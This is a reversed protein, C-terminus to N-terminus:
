RNKELQRQAEELERNAQRIIRQRGEADGAALQKIRRASESKIDRVKDKYSRSAFYAKSGPEIREVKLGGMAAKITLPDHERGRTDREGLAAPIFKRPIQGWYGPLYAGALHQGMTYADSDLANTIKRKRFNDYNFAMEMLPVWWASVAPLITEDNNIGGSGRIGFADKWEVPFPNLYRTNLVHESGKGIMMGAGDMYSPQEKLAEEQEQDLAVYDKMKNGQRTAVAYPGGSLYRDMALGMAKWPYTAFPVFTGKLTRIFGPVDDYDFTYGIVQDVIRRQHKPDALVAKESLGTERMIRGLENRAFAIKGVNDEFAWAGILGHVKVGTLMESAKSVPRFKPSHLNMADKASNVMNAIKDRAKAEFFDRKAKEELGKPIVLGEDQLATMKAESMGEIVDAYASAGNAYRRMTAELNDPANFIDGMQGANELHAGALIGQSNLFQRLESNNKVDGIAKKMNVLGHVPDDSTLLIANGVIQNLHSSPNLVVMNLKFWKNMVRNIKDLGGTHVEAARTLREYVPAPVYVGSLEGYTPVRLTPEITKPMQKYGALSLGWANAQQETFFVGADGPEKAVYKNKLNRMQDLRGGVMASDHFYGDLTEVLPMLGDEMAEEFSQVYKLEAKKLHGISGTKIANESFTLHETSIKHATGFEVAERAFDDRIKNEMYFRKEVDEIQAAKELAVVLRDRLSVMKKNFAAVGELQRRATPMYHVAKVINGPEMIGNRINRQADMFLAQKIRTILDAHPALRPDSIEVTLKSPDLNLIKNGDMGAMRVINEIRNLDMGDYRVKISSNELTGRFQGNSVIEKKGTLGFVRAAHNLTNTDLAKSPDLNLEESLEVMQAVNKPSLARPGAMLKSEKRVAAAERMMGRAALNAAMSKFLAKQGGYEYSFYRIMEKKFAQLAVNRAHEEASFKRDEVTEIWREAKSVAGEKSAIKARIEDERALLNRMVSESMRELATGSTVNALDAYADSLGKEANVARRLAGERRYALARAEAAQKERLKDAQAISRRRAQAIRKRYLKEERAVEARITAIREQLLMKDGELQKRTVPHLDPDSLRTALDSLDETAKALDGILAEARDTRGYQEQGFTRELVDVEERIHRDRMEIEEDFMSLMDARAKELASTHRNIVKSHSEEIHKMVVREQALQDGDIAAVSDAFGARVKAMEVDLVQKRLLARSLAQDAKALRGSQVAAAAEEAARHAASVAETSVGLIAREPIQEGRIVADAVDGAYVMADRMPEGIVQTMRLVEEASKVVLDGEHGAKNLDYTAEQLLKVLEPEVQDSLENLLDTRVNLEGTTGRPIGRMDQVLEGGAVNHMGAYEDVTYRLFPALSPNTEALRNTGRKAWQMASFNGDADDMIARYAALRSGKGAKGAVLGAKGLKLAPALTSIFDLPQSYAFGIPDVALRGYDELIGGGMAAAMEGVDSVFSRIGAEVGDDMGTQIARVPTRVVAGALGTFGLGMEKVNEAVNEGFGGIGTRSRARMIRALDPDYREMERLERDSLNTEDGLISGQQALYSLREPLKELQDFGTTGQDLNAKKLAADGEFSGFMMEVIQDENAM